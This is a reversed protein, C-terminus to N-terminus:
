VAALPWPFVTLLRCGAAPLWRFLGIVPLQFSSAPLEDTM